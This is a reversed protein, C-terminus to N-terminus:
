KRVFFRTSISNGEEIMIYQGCNLHDIKIESIDNDSVFNLVEVGLMDFVRFKSGKSNEVVIFDSAPNPYVNLEDLKNQGVFVATGGNSTVKPFIHWDCNPGANPDGGGWSYAIPAWYNPNSSTPYSEWANLYSQTCKLLPSSSFVLMTDGATFDPISVSVLAYGSVPVSVPNSFKFEAYPFHNYATGITIPDSVGLVSGVEGMTTDFEYITAYLPTSGNNNATTFVAARVSDITANPYVSPELYYLQAKQTEGYYGGGYTFLSPVSDTFCPDTNPLIFEPNPNRLNSGSELKYTTVDLASYSRNQANLATALVAFLILTYLNKM